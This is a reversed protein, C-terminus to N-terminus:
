RVCLGKDLNWLRITKDLSCSILMNDQYNKITVIGGHHCFLTKICTNTELNWLKIARDDSASILEGNKELGLCWVWDSHGTLLLYFEESIHGNFTKKCVGKELNCVKVTKDQSCSVLSGNSAFNFRKGM